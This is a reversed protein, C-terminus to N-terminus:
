NEPHSAIRVVVTGAIFDHLARRKENTLMTLIETTFWITAAFGILGQMRKFDPSNIGSGTLVVYLSLALSVTNIIIVMSDRLCAQRVTIPRESIDLVKIDCAMKGITQGYYSHMMVSYVWGAPYSILLWTAIVIIPRSPNLVWYNILAIPLLVIGDVLGAAFRRGGTRYKDLDEETISKIRKAEIAGSELLELEFPKWGTVKMVAGCDPCEVIDDSIDFIARCYVCRDKPM